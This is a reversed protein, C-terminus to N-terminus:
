FMVTRRTFLGWYLIVFPRLVFFTRSPICASISMIEIRVNKVDRMPNGQSTAAVTLLIEWTLASEINSESPFSFFVMSCRTVPSEM